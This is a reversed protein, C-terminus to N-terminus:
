RGAPLRKRTPDTILVRFELRAKKLANDMAVYVQARSGVVMRGDSRFNSRNEMFDILDKIIKTLDHFETNNELDLVSALTSTAWLLHRYDRINERRGGGWNLSWRKEVRVLIDRAQQLQQELLMTAVRKEIAQYRKGRFDLFGFCQSSGSLTM